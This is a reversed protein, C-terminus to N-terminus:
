APNCRLYRHEIEAIRQGDATINGVLQPQLQRDAECLSWGSQNQNFPVSVFKM